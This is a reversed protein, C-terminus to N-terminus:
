GWNRHEIETSVGAHMKMYATSDAHENGFIKDLMLLPDVILDYRMGQFATKVWDTCEHLNKFGLGGFRISTDEASVTLSDVDLVLQKLTAPMALREQECPGDERIKKSPHAAEEMDMSNGVLMSRLEDVQETQSTLEVKAMKGCWTDSSMKIVSANLSAMTARLIGVEPILTKIKEMIMAVVQMIKANSAKSTGQTEEITRFLTDFKGSFPEVVEQVKQVDFILRLVEEAIFGTSYWLTPAVFRADLDVPSGVNGKLNEVVVSLLDIEAETKLFRDRTMTTVEKMGAGMEVVNTELDAVPETILGRRLGTGIMKDLEEKDAPLARNHEMVEWDDLTTDENDLYRKRKSLTKFEEAQVLFNIERKVEDSTADANDVLKVAQFEQAWRPLSYSSSLWETKVQNPIQNWVLSQKKFASSDTGTKRKIFALEVGTGAFASKAVQHSRITCDKRTCFAGGQVKVVGFCVRPDRCDVKVISFLKDSVTGSTSGLAVGGGRICLRGPPRFLPRPPRASLLFSCALPM